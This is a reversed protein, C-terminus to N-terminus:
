FMQLLLKQRLEPALFKQELSVQILKSTCDMSRFSQNHQVTHYAYAGEVAAVQLEKETVKTKFFSTMLLSSAASSVAKKHKESSIHHQIDSRGGHGINFSSACTNCRVDSDTITTKIFPYEKQLETNFSCKRKKSAM